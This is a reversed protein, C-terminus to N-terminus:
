ITIYEAADAATASKKTRECKKGDKSGKLRAM